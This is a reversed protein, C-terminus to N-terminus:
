KGSVFNERISDLTEGLAEVPKGDQLGKLMEPKVDLADSAVLQYKRAESLDCTAGGTIVHVTVEYTRGARLEDIAMSDVGKGEPPRHFFWMAKIITQGAELKMVTPPGAIQPGASSPTRYDYMTPELFKAPFFTWEQGTAKDRLKLSTDVICGAASGKNAFAIALAVTVRKKGKQEVAQLIPRAISARLDFPWIWGLVGVPILLALLAAAATGVLGIDRIWQGM